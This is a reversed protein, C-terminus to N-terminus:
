PTDEPLSELELGTVEGAASQELGREISDLSEGSLERLQDREALLAAVDERLVSVYPAGGAAAERLRSLSDKKKGM